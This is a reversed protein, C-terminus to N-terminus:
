LLNSTCRILLYNSSQGFSMCTFGFASDENPPVLGDSQLCQSAIATYSRYFQWLRHIGYLIIHAIMVVIITLRRKYM